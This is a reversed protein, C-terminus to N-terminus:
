IVAPSASPNPRLGGYGMIGSGVALSQYQPNLEQRAPVPHRPLALGHPGKIKAGRIQLFIHPIVDAGILVLGPPPLPLLAAPPPFCLTDQPIM